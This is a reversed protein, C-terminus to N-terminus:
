IGLALIFVFGRFLATYEFLRSNKFSDNRFQFFCSSKSIM